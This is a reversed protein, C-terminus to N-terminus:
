TDAFAQFSFTVILTQVLSFKLCDAGWGYRGGVVRRM